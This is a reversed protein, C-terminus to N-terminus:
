QVEALKMPEPILEAVTAPHTKKVEEILHKTADRTLLEDAHRRVTETLHMALVSASDVVRYGFAEAEERQAMEIWLAPAGLAPERTEIGRLKGSTAGTDVAMLKAPELAGEAVVTDALKIRYA